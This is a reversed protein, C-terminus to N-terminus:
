LFPMWGIYMRCLNGEDTAEEILKQLQGEISLPLMSTTSTNNQTVSRGDRRRKEQMAKLVSDRNYVGRLREDIHQLMRRADSNDEDDKNDSNEVGAMDRSRKKTSSSSKKKKKKKKEKTWEVLPDHVFAELVSLLVQSESRLVRLVHECTGRFVGEYGMVGFADVMNSTLRFPVIEPVQLSLGKDFLCDFDVHVCEGSTQDLMINEGHRDGLGVIHGVMSYVACSRTFLLRAQFWETSDRFRKLFWRHFLRPFHVKIHKKYYKVIKDLSHQSLKKQMNEYKSKLRTTKKLPPSHGASEYCARVLTRYGATRRVWEILGCDESLCVM